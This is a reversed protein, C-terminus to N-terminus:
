HRWSCFLTLPHVYWSEGRLHVLETSLAECHELPRWLSRAGTSWLLSTNISQMSKKINHRFLISVNFDKLRYTPPGWELVTQSGGGPGQKRFIQKQLIHQLGSISFGKLISRRQYGSNQLKSRGKTVRHWSCADRGKGGWLHWQFYKWLGPNNSSTKRPGVWTKM